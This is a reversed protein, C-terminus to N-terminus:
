ACYKVFFSDEGWLELGKASAEQWSCFNGMVRENKIIIYRGHYDNKFNEQYQYYFSIERLM